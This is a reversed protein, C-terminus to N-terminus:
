FQPGVGRFSPVPAVAAGRGPLSRPPPRASPGGQGEVRQGQPDSFLGPGLVLCCAQGRTRRARLSFKGVPVCAGHEPPSVPACIEVCDRLVVVLWGRGVGWGM